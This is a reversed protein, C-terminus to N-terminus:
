FSKFIAKKWNKLFNIRTQQSMDPYFETKKIRHGMLESINRWFGSNLGAMYAVGLATTEQIEPREIVLDSIDSQFQLLLNNVSAGGDVRMHEVKKGLDEEMARIVDNSQFAISELTARAIHASNTGRTLGLLIGQAEHKWYPAGLGSFAPVFYVGGNDEATNALKEIDSSKKIIQLGDRLWQVAAGAIFVSGEIAYTTQNDLRWSITTILRNKSELAKNGTNMMLFCGTGYTNKVMGENLCLQGFLAAQQDGAVASIRIKNHFINGATEIDFKDNDLVEPLMNRPIEFMDLLEIDWQLTHINFLMTRSANSVDTVHHKGHTLNWVLWADVTGFALEGKEAKLKAGKVSNLIWNIKSASFYPDIELGTKKKVLDSYGNEKLKECFLATRHDQWVIANYIPKGSKRDWIISTERQNSIGIGHIDGPSIGLRAIAEAAVSVQSSWIEIPKHEVWGLKPFYQSIEKQASAVIKRKHNFLIARSSTTGQDLALIYKEKM